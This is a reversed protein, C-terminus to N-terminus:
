NANLGDAILKIIMDAPEYHPDINLASNAANRADTFEGLELYALALNFYAEKFQKEIQLVEKLVEIAEVYNEQKIYVVGLHNYAEKFNPDISIANKFAAIAKNYQEEDFFTWGLSYYRQKIKSLLEHASQYNQDFDLAQRAKDTAKKLDGQRLHMNGQRVLEVPKPKPVPKPEPDPIPDPKLDPEPVPKGNLRETAIEKLERMRHLWGSIISDSHEVYKKNAKEATDIVLQWKSQDVLTEAWTSYALTLYYYAKIDYSSSEHNIILTKFADVSKSFLMMDTLAAKYYCRGKWYLAYVIDEAPLARGTIEGYIEAAELYLQERWLLKAKVFLEDNPEPPTTRDSYIPVLYTRHYAEYLETKRKEDDTSRMAEEYSARANVYNEAELYIEAKGVHADIVYQTDPCKIILDTYLQYADHVKGQLQLDRATDYMMKAQLELDSNFRNNDDEDLKESTTLQGIEAIRQEADAKFDSHPYKAILKQFTERAIDYNQQQYNIEGITFLSKPVWRSNPFKDILRDFKSKAQDPNKTKYLTEAWLYTLEEEHKVVQTDLVVKRIYTLSSHYHRVDSSEEGLEYYCRAIRLNALTTFDKDIRETKAGLKKSEKLAEKYKEIAGEYDSRESLAEAAEFLREVKQASGLVLPSLLALVLAVGGIIGWIRANM